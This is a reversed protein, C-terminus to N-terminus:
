WQIQGPSRNSASPRSGPKRPGGVEELTERLDGQRRDVFDSLGAADFNARAQACESMFRHGGEDMGEWSLEGREARQRFYDSTARTQSDSRAHLRDPLDELNKDGLGNSM